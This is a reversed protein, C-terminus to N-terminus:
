SFGYAGHNGPLVVTESQHAAGAVPQIGQLHHLFALGVQQEGINPHREDRTNLKGPLHALDARGRVNRKEAAIVIKFVGLLCDLIVNDAIHEFGQGHFSQALLQLIDPLLDVSLKSHEPLGGGIGASQIELGRHQHRQHQVIVGLRVAFRPGLGVGSLAAQQTIQIVAGVIDHHYGGQQFRVAAVASRGGKYRGDVPQCGFVQPAGMEESGAFHDGHQQAIGGLKVLIKVNQGVFDGLHASRTSPLHQRMPILRAVCM